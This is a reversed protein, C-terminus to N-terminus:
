QQVKSNTSSYNCEGSRASEGAITVQNSDGGFNSICKNAKRLAQIMDFIGLNGPM